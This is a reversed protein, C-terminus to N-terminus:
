FDLALSRMRRQLFGQEASCESLTIAHQYHKKALDHNGTRRYIDACAAHYPQYNALTESLATLESVIPQPGEQLYSRAVCHNLAVVPTPQLRHLQAYLGAVQPWDVQHFSKARAHLARIAAQIQYPGPDGRSM